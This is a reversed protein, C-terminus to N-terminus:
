RGDEIAKVEQSDRAEHTEVALPVKAEGVGRRHSDIALSIALIIGLSIVITLFDELADAKSYFPRAKVEVGEYSMHATENKWTSYSILARDLRSLKSMDEGAEKLNDEAVELAMGLWLTIVKWTIITAVLVIFLHTFNM